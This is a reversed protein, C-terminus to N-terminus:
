KAPVKLALEPWIDILKLSKLGFTFAFGKVSHPLGTVDPGELRLGSVTRLINQSPFKGIRHQTDAQKSVQSNSFFSYNQITEFISPKAVAM